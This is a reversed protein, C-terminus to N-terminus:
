SLIEDQIVKKNIGAFQSTQMMEVLEDQNIKENASANRKESSCGYPM